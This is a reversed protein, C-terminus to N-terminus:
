EDYHGKCSLIELTDGAIRYVLRDTHNIHRSWFGSLDEKLPEPKGIGEFPNIDIAKILSHIKKITKKDEGFWYMYDNWAEDTWLKNM